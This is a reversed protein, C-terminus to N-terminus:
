RQGLASHLPELLDIRRLLLLLLLAVLAAALPGHHAFPHCLTLRSPLRLALYGPWLSTDLFDEGCGAGHRTRCGTPQCDLLLVESLVLVMCATAWSIIPGGAILLIMVPWHGVLLLHRHKWMLMWRRPDVTWDGMGPKRTAPGRKPSCGTQTLKQSPYQSPFTDQRAWLTMVNHSLDMCNRRPYIQPKESFCVVPIRQSGCGRGRKLRYNTPTNCHFRGSGGTGCPRPQPASMTEM